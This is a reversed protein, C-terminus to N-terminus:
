AFAHLHALCRAAFPMQMYVPIALLESDVRGAKDERRTQKSVRQEM